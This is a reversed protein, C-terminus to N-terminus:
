GCAQEIAATIKEHWTAITKESLQAIRNSLEIEIGAYQTDDFMTRLMTTLGDDTGLYPENPRSKFGRQTLAQLLRQSFRTENKRDPDFLVGIDFKRTNGRYRPTFTHISLHVM